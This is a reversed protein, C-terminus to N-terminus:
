AARTAAQPGSPRYLGRIEPDSVFTDTQGVVTEGAGLMLLGDPAIAAHLRDFAVRRREANFYFLLNRCLIIDAKGALPAPDLLNHERFRIRGALERRVRWHAGDQEFWRLMQGVPLGRQIEFQSFRGDRAQTVAGHSIDTALLDIRWGDWRTRAEAFQIALSYAEQGTSCGACWISLRREAARRTRMRDLGATALLEFVARDRFFSTENNLLAEVVLGALREDRRGILATVLEALSGLSRERLLPKLATEVRWLRSEAMQQGSHQELLNALFRLTAPAASM